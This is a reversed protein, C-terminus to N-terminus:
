IYFELMSPHHFIWGRLQRNARYLEIFNECDGGRINDAPQMMQFTPTLPERTALIDSLCRVQSENTSTSTTKHSPVRRWELKRCDPPSPDPM